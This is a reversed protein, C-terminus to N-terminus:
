DLSYSFFCDVKKTGDELNRTKMRLHPFYWREYYHFVFKHLAKLNSKAPEYTPKLSGKKALNTGPSFSRTVKSKSRAIQKM